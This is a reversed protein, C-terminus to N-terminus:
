REPSAMDVLDDKPKGPIRSLIHLLQLCLPVIETEVFNLDM